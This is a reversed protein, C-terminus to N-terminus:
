EAIRVQVQGPQRIQQSALAASLWSFSLDPNSAWRGLTRLAEARTADDYLLIYREEGIVVCVCNIDVSPILRNNM